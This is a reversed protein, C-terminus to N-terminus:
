DKFWWKKNNSPFHTKSPSNPTHNQPSPNSIFNLRFQVSSENKEAEKQTNKPSTSKSQPLREVSVTSALVLSVNSKRESRSFSFTFFFPVLRYHVIICRNPRTQNAMFKMFLSNWKKNKNNNSSVYKDHFKYEM